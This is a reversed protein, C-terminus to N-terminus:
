KQLDLLHEEASAVIGEGALNPAAGVSFGDKNMGTLWKELWDCAKIELPNFADYEKIAWSKAQEENLWVPLVKDKGLDVILCGQEDALTWISRGQKIHRTLRDYREASTLRFFTDNASDAITM